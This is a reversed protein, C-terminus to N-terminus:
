FWVLTIVEGQNMFVDGYLRSKAYFFEARIVGQGLIAERFNRASLMNSMKGCTIETRIVRVESSACACQHECRMM